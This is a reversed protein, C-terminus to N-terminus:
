EVVTFDGEQGVYAGWPPYGRSLKFTAISNVIAAVFHLVESHEGDAKASIWGSNGITDHGFVWLGKGVVCLVPVLPHHRDHDNLESDLEELCEKLRGFEDGEMDSAYAFVANGVHSHSKTHPNAAFRLGRVEKAARIASILGRRELVSKVEIRFLVGDVPFIGDRASLLLPPLIERDYIVVDDETSERQNGELDVITGTGSGCYPPLLPEIVREVLIERFRGRLGKHEVGSLHAADQIMSNVQQSYLDRVMDNM